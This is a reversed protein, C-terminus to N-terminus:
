EDDSMLRVLLWRPKTLRDRVVIDRGPRIKLRINYVHVNVTHDGAMDDDLCAYLEEYTHGMGDSLVNMIRQQTPTFGNTAM